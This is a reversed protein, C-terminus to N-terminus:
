FTKGEVKGAVTAAVAVCLVPAANHHEVHSTVMMGGAEVGAGIHGEKKATEAATYHM